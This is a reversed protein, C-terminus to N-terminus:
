YYPFVHVNMYLNAVSYKYRDNLIYLKCNVRHNWRLKHKNHLPEPPGRLVPLDAEAEMEEAFTYTTMVKPSKTVLYKFTICLM